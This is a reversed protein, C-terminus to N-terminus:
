TEKVNSEKRWTKAKEKWVKFESNWLKKFTYVELYLLLLLLLSGGFFISTSSMSMLYASWSLGLLGIAVLVFSALGKLYIKM